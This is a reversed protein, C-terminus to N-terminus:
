AAKFDADRKELFASYGERYDQGNASCHDVMTRCILDSFLDNQLWGHFSLLPCSPDDFQLARLLSSCARLRSPPSLSSIGVETGFCTFGEAQEDATFPAGAKAGTPHVRKIFEKHWGSDLETNDALM